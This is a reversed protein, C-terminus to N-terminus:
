RTTQRSHIHTWCRLETKMQRLLSSIHVARIRKRAPFATRLALAMPGGYRKKMFAALGVLRGEVTESGTLVEGVAKLKEEPLDTEDSFGVIYGEMKRNGGFPVLVRGGLQASEQLEEPLLYTFPRDLKEAALDVIVEAFKGKIGPM